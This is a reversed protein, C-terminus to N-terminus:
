RNARRSILSIIKFPVNFQIFFFRFLSFSTHQAAVEPVNSNENNWCVFCSKRYVTMNIACEHMRSKANIAQQLSEGYLNSTISCVKLLEIAIGQVLSVFM